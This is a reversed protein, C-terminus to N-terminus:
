RSQSTIQQWLGTLWEPMQWAPIDEIDTPLALPSDSASIFIASPPPDYEDPWVTQHDYRILRLNAGDLHTGELNTGRLDAWTLDAGSLDAGEMDAGRLDAGRLDAGRLNEKRLDAFPGFAGSNRYDFANPWRTD